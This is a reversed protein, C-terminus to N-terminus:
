SLLTKTCTHQYWFLHQYSNQNQVQQPLVQAVPILVSSYKKLAPILFFVLCLIFSSFILDRFCQLRQPLFLVDKCQDFYKPGYSDRVELPLRDWLARLNVEMLDLRTIATQFFGPELISVKIGFHSMELRPPAYCTAYLLQSYTCFM